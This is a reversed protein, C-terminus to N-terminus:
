RARDRHDPGASRGRAPNRVTRAGVDSRTTAHPSTCRSAPRFGLEALICGRRRCTFCAQTGRTARSGAALGFAHPSRTLGACPQCHGTFRSPWVVPTTLTPVTLYQSLLRARTPMNESRHGQDTIGAPSSSPSCAWSGPPARPPRRRRHWTTCRRPWCARRGPGPEVGPRRRRRGARRRAGARQRGATGRPPVARRARPRGATGSTLAAVVPLSKKRSRLDSHVPKGTVAPDGWIGLLDDVLQFALGLATASAACRARGAGADGGGFLAGLACACGLLAGTKGRGHRLCEALSCTRRAGRVGPRREARRAAGAGRRQAHRIAEAHARTGAARRARRLRADAARRRRPDGRQRRVRTWATPRHRRTVDGDM